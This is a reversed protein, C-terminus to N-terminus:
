YGGGSGKMPILNKLALDNLWPRKMYEKLAQLKEIPILQIDFVGFKAAILNMAIEVGGQKKDLHYQKNIYDFQRDLFQVMEPSPELAENKTSQVPNASEASPMETTKPAAEQTETQPEPAPASAKEPEQAPKATLAPDEKPTQAPEMVVTAKVDIPEDEASPPQTAAQPESVSEPLPEQATRPTPEPPEPAPAPAAKNPAPMLSQTKPPRGRGRSPAHNVPTVDITGESYDIDTEPLYATGIIDAFLKKGLRSICRWFLMDEPTKDWSGDKKLLGARKADSITYKQEWEEGNDKRKGFLVCEEDDSKKISLTHGAQRIKINIMEASMSIKGQINHFGGMVASMPAVGLERAFLMVTLVGPLGGLQSVLRSDAAYQAIATLVQMEHEDPLANTGFLIPATASRRVVLAANEEAM